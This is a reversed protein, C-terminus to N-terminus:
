HSLSKTLSEVKLVALVQYHSSDPSLSWIMVTRDRSGTTVVHDALSVCTVALSHGALRYRPSPCSVMEERDYVAVTTDESCTTIFLCSIDISWLINDHNSIVKLTNVTEQDQSVSSIVLQGDDHGSLLHLEGGDGAMLKVSNVAGFESWDLRQRM